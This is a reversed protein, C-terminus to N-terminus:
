PYGTVSVTSGALRERCTVMIGNELLREVLKEPTGNESYLIFGTKKAFYRELKQKKAIFDDVAQGTVETNWDKVEVIFDMGDPLASRCFIDVEVRSQQDFHFIKKEMSTFPGFIMGPIVRKVIDELKAGRYLAFTLRNIIRYEGSLGKYYSIRGKLSDLQRKIDAEIEENGVREIEKEYIRRFVIEFIKDGLGKYDFNSKGQALIDAKVLKRLREELEGDSMELKLDKLIQERTREQGGYKALYLV